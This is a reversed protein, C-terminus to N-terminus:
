EDVLSFVIKKPIRTKTLFRIKNRTHHSPTQENDKTEEGSEGIELSGM